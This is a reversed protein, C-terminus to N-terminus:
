EESAESEDKKSVSNDFLFNQITDLKAWLERLAEMVEENNGGGGQTTQTAQYGGFPITKGGCEKYKPCGWFKDEGKTRLVMLTQCKNCKPTEM